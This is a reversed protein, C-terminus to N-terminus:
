IVFFDFNTLDLHSDLVAFKKASDPGTGDPDYKLIGKKAYYIIRDSADQAEKAIVFKKAQLTEGVPGIKTFIDKDLDILDKSTDYDTITDVNKKNNIKSDFVFVDRGRGGSLLDNGYNGFIMDNGSGGDITDDGGLGYMTDRGRGGFIEDAYGFGSLTDDGNGGYLFFSKNNNKPSLFDDGDLGYQTQQNGQNTDNGNTGVYTAM